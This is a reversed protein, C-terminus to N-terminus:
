YIAIEFMVSLLQKSLGRLSASIITEVLTTVLAIIFWWTNLIQM